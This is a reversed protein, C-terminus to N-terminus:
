GEQLKSKAGGTKKKQKFRISCLQEKAGQDVPPKGGQFGM